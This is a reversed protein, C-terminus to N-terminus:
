RVDRHERIFTRISDLILQPPGTYDYSKVSVEEERLEGMIEDYGKIIHRHNLVVGEMQVEQRVGAALASYSPRCHIVLSPRGKLWLAIQETTLGHLCKGRIIPGYVYESIVSLRDCVIPIRTPVSALWGIVDALQGITPPGSSKLFLTYEDLDKRIRHALSTKGSGDAGELIILM